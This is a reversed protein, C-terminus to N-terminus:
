KVELQVIQEKKLKTEKMISEVGALSNAISNGGNRKLSNIIASEGVNMALAVQLRLRQTNELKSKIAETLVYM